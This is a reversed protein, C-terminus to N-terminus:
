SEDQEVYVTLIVLKGTRGFRIVVIISQTGDVSQGQVVYKREKTKREKQQEIIAGTLIASEIDFITLNDEGM